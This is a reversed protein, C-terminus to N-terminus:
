IVSSFMAMAPTLALSGLCIAVGYPVPEGKGLLRPLAMWRGFLSLFLGQGWATRLLLLMVSLTGGALFVLLLQPVLLDLGVWLSAAAFLKVDGGGLLRFQFLALGVVLVGLGALVHRVIAPLPLLLPAALIFAAILILVLRNPIIYSRADSVAAWLLVGCYLALAAAGVLHETM